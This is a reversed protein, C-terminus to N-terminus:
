VGFVFLSFEEAIEGQQEMRQGIETMPDGIKERRHTHIRERQM